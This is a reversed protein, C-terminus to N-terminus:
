LNNLIEAVSARKRFNTDFFRYTIKGEPNIIYVAPVPLNDSNSGNREKLDIGNAVHIINKGASMKFNVKYASLIKLSDDSLISFMAKTKAITETVGKRQEPTVAIVTAHKATIMPLSDQLQALQRNCYPCWEGRYFILVVSGKELENKLHIIDGFQNISTFDPAVDGTKLGEPAAQAFANHINFFVIFLIVISSTVPYIKM